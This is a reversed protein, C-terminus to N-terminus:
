RGLDAHETRSKTEDPHRSNTTEPPVRFERRAAQEYEHATAHPHDAIWAAKRQEYAHCSV